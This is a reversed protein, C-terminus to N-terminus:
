QKIKAAYPCREIHNDFERRTVYDEILSAQFKSLKSEVIMSVIAAFGGLLTAGATIGAFILTWTSHWENM